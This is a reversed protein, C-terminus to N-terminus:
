KVRLFARNFYYKQTLDFYNKLLLWLVRKNGVIAKLSIDLFINISEKNESEIRVSESESKKEELFNSDNKTFM